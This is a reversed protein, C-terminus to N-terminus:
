TVADISSGVEEFLKRYDNFVRAGAFADDKKREAITNDDIDCIAVIKGGKAADQSDSKGKGGVGVCAFRVEELASRSEKPAVGGAVWYGCSVAATTKIFQRRSNNTRKM